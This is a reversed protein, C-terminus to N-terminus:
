RQDAARFPLIGRLKLIKSLFRGGLGYVWFVPPVRDDPQEGLIPLFRYLLERGKLGRSLSLWYRQQQILTNKQFAPSARHVFFGSYFTILQDWCYKFEFFGVSDIFAAHFTHVPKGDSGEFGARNSSFRIGLTKLNWRAVNHDKKRYVTVGEFFIPAFDLYAQDGVIGKEPNFSCEALCQDGWWKLFKEAGPRVGIMGANYLGDKRGNPYADNWHPFVVTHGSSFTELLHEPCSFFYVDSDCHFTPSNTEKLVREIIKPKSSFAQFAISRKEITKLEKPNWLDKLEYVQVLGPYKEELFTRVESDLALLHLHIQKKSKQRINEIMGLYFPLYSFDSISTLHLVSPEANSSTTIDFNTQPTKQATKRYICQCEEYVDEPSKGLVLVEPIGWANEGDVQTSLKIAVKGNSQAVLCPEWFSSVVCGANAVADLHLAPNVPSFFTMPGPPAGRELISKEQCLFLTPCNKHSIEWFKKNWKSKIEESACFVWREELQRFNQPQCKLAYNQSLNEIAVKCKSIQKEENELLKEKDTLLVFKDFKGLSYDTRLPLGDLDFWVCEAGPNEALFGALRFFHNLFGKSQISYLVAIKM